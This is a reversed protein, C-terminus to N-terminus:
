VSPARELRAIFFGDMGALRSDPNPLLFPLTRADGQATVAEALGGIEGPTIPLRRIDPARALLAEIQAEGEEQELSCTSYVVTGGPRVLTVAKDLLRAQLAVLRVLDADSKLWPVDPHRRITGTASCPADLLVADFPGGEYALADREITKVELGLRALGSRLRALRPGSRDLAVVDAGASALQATKGGPAACMDLIHLGPRPRLLPAALAAAADQVWWAGDKFGPLDAVATRPRLRLSGTPLELADLRAAWGPADAKVSIDIGPESALAAAIQAAVAPGYQAIWRRTLWSPLNDALPDHSALIAPRDRAIARLVANILNVYRGAKPDQRALNVATDVAAHDPIDLFLLQAAGILMLVELPGADRPLGEHLRQALVRRLLGLHRITVTAIARLLGRDLDSLQPSATLADLTDDLARRRTIVASVAECALRREPLGASSPPSAPRKERAPKAPPAPRRTL